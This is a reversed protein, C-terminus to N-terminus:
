RSTEYLQGEREFVMYKDAQTVFPAADRMATNVEVVPLPASWTAGMRKSVYINRTSDAHFYIVDANNTLSASSPDDSVSNIATLLVPTSFTDSLDARTAIWLTRSGITGRDIIATLGDPSVGIGSEIGTTSLEAVVTPTSWLGLSRTSTYIDGLGSRTSAFWMRSADTSIEVSSDEVTSNVPSVVIPTGWANAVNTRSSTWIDDGGMGGSRRSIFFLELRNDTFSADSEKATTNVTTIAIPQSWGMLQADIMSDIMVTSDGPVDPVAGDNAHADAGVGPLLCRGGTCVLTEPCTDNAGCPAGAQPSPDYCAALLVLVVLGRM